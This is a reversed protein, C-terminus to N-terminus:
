HSTDENTADEAILKYLIYDGDEGAEAVQGYKRMGTLHWLVQDSALRLAAALAPVTSAENALLGRIAKRQAQMDQHRARQEPRLGGAIGRLKALAQREETTLAKLAM